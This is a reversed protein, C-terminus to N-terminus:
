GEQIFEEIDKVTADYIYEKGAHKIKQEWGTYLTIKVRSKGIKCFRVCKDEKKYYENSIKTNGLGVYSEKELTYGNELLLSKIKKMRDRRIKWLVAHLIGGIWNVIVRGIIHEDGFITVTPKGYAERCFSFTGDNCAIVTQNYGEIKAQEIANKVVQKKSNEM